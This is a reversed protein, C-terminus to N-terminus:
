RCTGTNMAETDICLTNLRIFPGFIDGCAANTMIPAEAYRLIQSLSTASDSTRGFGSFLGIEGGLEIEKHETRPLRVVGVYELDLLDLPADELRILGVDFSFDDANREPHIILNNRGTVITTFQYQGPPRQM